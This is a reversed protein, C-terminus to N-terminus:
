VPDVVMLVPAVSARPPVVPEIALEEPTIAFPVNSVEPARILAEIMLRDPEPATASPPWVRVRVLALPVKEPTIASPPSEPPVNPLRVMAAPVSVRVPTLVKVPLAVIL